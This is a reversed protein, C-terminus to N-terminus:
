IANKNTHSWSIHINFSFVIMIQIWSLFIISTRNFFGRFIHGFHRFLYQTEYIISWHLHSLIRGRWFTYLLVLGATTFCFTVNRKLSTMWSSVQPKSKSKLSTFSMSSHGETVRWLIMFVAALLSRLLKDQGEAQGLALYFIKGEKWLSKDLRNKFIKSWPSEVVEKNLVESIWCTGFFQSIKKPM